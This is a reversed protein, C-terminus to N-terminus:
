LGISQLVFAASLLAFFLVEWWGPDIIRCHYLVLCCAVMVVLKVIDDWNRVKKSGEVFHFQWSWATHAIQRVVFRDIRKLLPSNRFKKIGCLIIYCQRHHRARNFLATEEDRDGMFRCMWPLSCHLDHKESCTKCLISAGAAFELAAYQWWDTHAQNRLFYGQSQRIRERLEHWLAHDYQSQLLWVFESARLRDRRLNLRGVISDVAGPLCQLRALERALVEERTNM